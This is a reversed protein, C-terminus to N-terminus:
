LNQNVITIEDPYNYDGIPTELVPKGILKIGTGGDKLNLLKLLSNIVETGKQDKIIKMLDFSATVPFSGKSGGAPIYIKEGINGESILYEDLYLKWPFSKLYLKIDETLASGSNEVNVKAILNLKLEGGSIVNGAIKLTEMTSFDNISKKNMLSIGNVELNEIKEFSFKLDKLATVADFVSCSAAFVLILALIISKKFM